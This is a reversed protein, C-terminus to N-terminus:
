DGIYVTVGVDSQNGKVTVGWLMPANWDRGWGDVFGDTLMIIAEPKLKKDRIYNSVCQPYTGGGGRPKTSTLLADFSDRDYSEHQCVRTDWYLLEISEPTVSQCIARVEGLFQGIIENNISGSTDIGIVLQGVSEGITSPLYVDRDVWRRNPRRWTSLDKEACYSTIFERLADRWDIKSELIDTIERPVNAGLKGALLAGQRLAQDIDRAIKEKEASSLEKAEDWGHEDFGGQTEEDDGGDSPESGDSGGNDGTEGKEGKRGRGKGGGNDKLLRFVTGADLGRYQEDLLGGEPLTVFKGEPDSDYIMLNIVYDCAMNAKRPHKKYLDEWTTLHRFAKHLNEHLIVGRLEPDSLKDVFARGYRTNFGDTYATPCGQDVVATRGMMFIGSYLCYKPENMLAIHAKQVRQEASLKTM